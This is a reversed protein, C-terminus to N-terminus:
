DDEFRLQMQSSNQGAIGRNIIRFTSSSLADLDWFETISDGIAVIRPIQDAAARLLGNEAAYHAIEPLDEQQMMWRSAFDRLTYDGIGKGNLPPRLHKTPKEDPM